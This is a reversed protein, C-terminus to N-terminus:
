NRDSQAVLFVESVSSLTAVVSRSEGDTTESVHADLVRARDGPQLDLGPTAGRLLVPNGQPLECAGEVIADWSSNGHRSVVSVELDMFPTEALGRSWTGLRLAQWYDECLQRVGCYKCNAATPRAEPPRADLAQIAADRRDALERELSDLEAPSPSDVQVNGNEYALTLKGARQSSPNREVDRSWLLAYVRVQFAHKEDRLGTKYDLIECSSASLSVLDAKGHWGIQFARLDMELYTGPGLRERREAPPGSGGAGPRLEIRGLLTQAQARMQPAQSRLSRSAAELIPAARPNDALNKLVVQICDNLVKTYGGLERMVGTARVDRASSCGARVLARAITELALHVVSGRLSPIFPRPPYGRRAWLDPYDASALAWRRPCAEIERLASVTM